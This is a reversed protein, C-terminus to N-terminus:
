TQRRRRRQPRGPTAEVENWLDLAMGLCDFGPGLNASTAPARVVISTPSLRAGDARPKTRRSRPRGRCSSITSRPSSARRDRRHEPIARGINFTITAAGSADTKSRAPPRGANTPPRYHVIAWVDADAAPQGDRRLKILWTKPPTRPQTPIPSASPQLRRLAAAVGPAPHRDAGAHGVPRRPSTSRAAPPSSLPLVNQLANLASLNISLRPPHPARWGAVALGVVILVVLVYSLGAYRPQVAHRPRRRRTIRRRPRPARRIPRRRVRAGAAAGPAPPRVRRASAPQGASRLRRQAARLAASIEDRWRGALAGGPPSLHDPDRRRLGVPDLGLVAYLGPDPDRQPRADHALASAHSALRANM